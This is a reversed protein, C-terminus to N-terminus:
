FISKEQAVGGQHEDLKHAFTLGSPPAADASM